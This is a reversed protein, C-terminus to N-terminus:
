YGWGQDNGIKGSRSGWGMTFCKKGEFNQNMAALPIIDVYPNQQYEVPTATYLLAIDNPIHGPGVLYDPHQFLCDSM